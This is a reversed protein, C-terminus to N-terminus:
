RQVCLRARHRSTVGAIHLTLNQVPFQENCDPTEDPMRPITVNVQYLGVFGPTLGVFQPKTIPPELTPKTGAFEFFLRFLSAFPDVQANPPTAEGTKVATNTNGLGYAYVVVTEGSKAPNGISVLRGDSHTVIDFICPVGQYDGEDRIPEKDCLNLVHINDSGAGIRVEGGSIGDQSVLLVPPGDPDDQPPILLNSPVKLEFPIQVTIATFGQALAQIRFMPVPFSKGSLTYKLTVSIGSLNTPLPLGTAAAERPPNRLGHVFLSIVQGPAVGVFMKSAYGGGVITTSTQALLCVSCMLSVALCNGFISGARFLLPLFRATRNMRRTTDMLKVGQNLIM